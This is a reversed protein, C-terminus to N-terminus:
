VPYVEMETYYDDGNSIHKGKEVRFVGNATKSEIKLKADTTIRHNLLSVVKWGRVTTEGEEKEITTPSSILGREKNLVFGIDDGENKPRIFIKGRNVHVKSGSDNAIMKVAEKLTKNVTKGGIYTKDEKLKFVGIELTVTSLVDNLVQKSTIGEKYTRNIRKDLWEESADIVQITTIKDVNEWHTKAGKCEGLLIAGVDEKYGANLIVKSGNKINNISTDSLNYIEVEAVNVDDGDSFEVNFHITFEDYKKGDILLETKRGYLNSM